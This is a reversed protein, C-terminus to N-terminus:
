NLTGLGTLNLPDDYFKGKGLNKYSVATNTQPPTPHDGDAWRCPRNTWSYGWQVSKLITDTGTRLADIYFTRSIDALYTFSEPGGNIATTPFDTGQIDYRIATGSHTDAVIDHDGSLNVNNWGSDIPMKGDALLRTIALNPDSGPNFGSIISLVQDDTLYTGPDTTKEFKTM